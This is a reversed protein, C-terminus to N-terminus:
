GHGPAATGGKGNRVVVVIFVVIILTVITAPAYQQWVWSGSFSYDNLSSYVVVIFVIASVGFLVYKIWDLKTKDDGGLFLGFLIIAALLISLGIAFSPAFNSVFNPLFDNYLSLLGLAIAIISHVGKNDGLVRMNSLIGYILAFVLLFPLVYKFLGQMEGWNLFDVFTWSALFLGTM